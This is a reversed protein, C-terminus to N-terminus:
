LDAEVGLQRALDAYDDARDLDAAHPTCLGAPHDDCDACIGSPQRYEIADALAQGLIALHNGDPKAQCPTGPPADCLPCRRARAAQAARLAEHPITVAM